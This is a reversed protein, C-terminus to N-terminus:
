IWMPSYKDWMIRVNNGKAQMVRFGTQMRRERVVM